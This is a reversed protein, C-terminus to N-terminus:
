EEKRNEEEEDKELVLVVEEESDEVRVEEKLKATLYCRGTHKISPSLLQAAAAGAGPQAGRHPLGNRPPWTARCRGSLLLPAGRQLRWPATGDILM